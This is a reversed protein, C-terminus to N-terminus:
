ARSGKTAVDGDDAVEGPEKYAGLDLKDDGTTQEFASRSAVGARQRKSAENAVQESANRKRKGRWTPQPTQPMPPSDRSPSPTKRSNDDWRPDDGGATNGEDGDGDSGEEIQQSKWWIRGAGWTLRVQPETHIREDMPWNWDALDDLMESRTPLVGRLAQQTTLANDDDSADKNDDISAAPSEQAVPKKGKSRIRRPRSPGADEEDELHTVRGATNTDAQSHGEDGDDNYEDSIEEEADNDDDDVAPATALAPVATNTTNAAAIANAAAAQITANSNDIAARLTSVDVVGTTGPVYARIAADLAGGDNIGVGLDRIAADQAKWIVILPDKKTSKPVVARPRSVQRLIELIVKHKTHQREADSLQWSPSYATTTKLLAM